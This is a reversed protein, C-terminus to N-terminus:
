KLYTRLTLPASGIRSRSDIKEAVGLLFLSFFHFPNGLFQSYGAALGFLIYWKESQSTL